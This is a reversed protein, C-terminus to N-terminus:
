LKRRVEEIQKKNTLIGEKICFESFEKWNIKHMKIFCGAVKEDNEPCEIFTQQVYENFKDKLFWPINKHICNKCFNNM